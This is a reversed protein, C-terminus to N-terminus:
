YHKKFRKKIKNKVSIGNTTILAERTNVTSISDDKTSNTISSNNDMTIVSNNTMVNESLEKEQSKNYLFFQKTM